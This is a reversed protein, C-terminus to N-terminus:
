LRRRTTACTRGNFGLLKRSSSASVVTLAHQDLQCLHLTHAVCTNGQHEHEHTHTTHASDVATRTTRILVTGAYSAPRVSRPATSHVRHTSHCRLPTHPNRSRGPYPPRHVLRRLQRPARSGRARVGAHQAVTAAQTTPPRHLQAVIAAQTPPPCGRSDHHTLCLTRLGVIHACNHSSIHSGCTGAYNAPPWDPRGRITHFVLSFASHM